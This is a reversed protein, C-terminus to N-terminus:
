LKSSKLIELKNIKEDLYCRILTCLKVIEENKTDNHVVLRYWGRYDSIKIAINNIRLFLSLDKINFSDAIEKTVRWFVLNIETARDRVEVYKIASLGDALSQAHWNDIESFGSNEKLALLGPIALIGAQPVVGGLAGRFM